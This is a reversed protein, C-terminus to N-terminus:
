KSIWDGFWGAAAQGAGNAAGNLAGGWWPTTQGGNSGANGQVGTIMTQMLNLPLYGAQIMQNIREQEIARTRDSLGLMENLSNSRMQERQNFIGMWDSLAQSQGMREADLGGLTYQGAQGLLGFLANQDGQNKAFRQQMAQSFLAQENNRNTQNAQFQDGLGALAAQGMQQSYQGYGQAGIQSGLNIAQARRNAERDTYDAMVRNKDRMGQERAANNAQMLQLQGAGSRGIGAAEMAQMIEPLQTGLSLETERDINRNLQRINTDALANTQDVGRQGYFDAAGPGGTASQMTSLYDGPNPMAYPSSANLGRLGATQNLPDLWVDSNLNNRIGLGAQFMDSHWPDDISGDYNRVGYDQGVRLGTQHIPSLLVQGDPGVKDRGFWIDARNQWSNNQFAGGPSNPDYTGDGFYRSTSDDVAGLLQDTPDAIGGGHIQRNWALQTTGFPDSGFIGGPNAVGDKKDYPGGDSRGGFIRDFVGIGTPTVFREGPNYAM